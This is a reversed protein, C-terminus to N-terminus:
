SPDRTEFTTAKNKSECTEFNENKLKKVFKESKKKRKNEFKKYAKTKKRRM